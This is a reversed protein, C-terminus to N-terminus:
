RVEIGHEIAGELASEGYSVCRNGEPSVELRHLCFGKDNGLSRYAGRVCEYSHTTAFVQVDNQRATEAVVQWVQPLVAYHLGNEIEDILVIGGVAAKIALVLRAISVMGEGMTFLPVLESLGIDCWIAPTGGAVSDTVSKLRPEIVKLANVLTQDQKQTRMNALRQADEQSNRHAPLVIAALFPVPSEPSKTEYQDKRIYAQGVTTQASRHRDQYHLELGGTIPANIMMPERLSAPFGNLTDAGAAQLTLQMHRLTAHCGEIIVTQSTDMEFFLSKWLVTGFPGVPVEAKGSHRVVHPNFTLHAHGGGSLLFLAELLATKGVNNKGTFLNIRGLRNIKLDRFTRYGRIRVSSLM